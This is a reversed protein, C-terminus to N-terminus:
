LPFLVGTRSESIQTRTRVTMVISTVWSLLRKGRQAITIYGRLQTFQVQDRVDGESKLDPPGSILLRDELAPSM